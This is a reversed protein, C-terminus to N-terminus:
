QTAPPPATRMYDRFTQVAINDSAGKLASGAGARMCWNLNREQLFRAYELEERALAVDRADNSLLRQRLEPPIAADGHVTRTITGMCAMTLFNNNTLRETIEQVAKTVESLRERDRETGREIEAAGGSASTLAAQRQAERQETAQAELTRVREEQATVSNQAATATATTQAKVEANADPPLSAVRANALDRNRELRRLEQRAIALESNTQVIMADAGAGIAVAPARVAGTLQEIAVLGLMMEQYRNWLVMYQLPDIAGNMYSECLRYMGDRLLQISQTRVGITAATEALSASANAQGVSNNQVGGAVSLALASMADPSPEACVIMHPDEDELLDRAVNAAAITQAPSANAERAAEVAALSLQNTRTHVDAGTIIARSRADVLLASDRDLPEKNVLATLNACGATMILASTLGLLKKLNM